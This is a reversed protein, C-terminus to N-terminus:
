GCRVCATCLHPRNNCLYRPRRTQRYKQRNAVVTLRACVAAGISTGNPTHVRTLGLFWTNSPPGSRGLSTPFKQHLVDRLGNCLILSYRRVSNPLQCCRHPRESDTSCCSGSVVHRWDSQSGDTASSKRNGSGVGPVRKRFV